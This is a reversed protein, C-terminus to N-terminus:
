TARMQPMEMELSVKGKEERKAPKYIFRQSPEDQGRHRFICM